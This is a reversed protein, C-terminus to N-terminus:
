SWLNTFQKNKGKRVAKLNFARESKKVETGTNSISPRVEDEEESTKM